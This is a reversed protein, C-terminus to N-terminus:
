GGLRVLCNGAFRPCPIRGVFSDYLYDYTFSKTTGDAPNTIICQNAKHAIQIISSSSQDLENKNFPRLRVAVKVSTSPSATAM